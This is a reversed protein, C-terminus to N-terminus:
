DILSVPAMSAVNKNPEAVDIANVKKRSFSISYCCSSPLFWVRQPCLHHKILKGEQPQYLARCLSCFDTGM